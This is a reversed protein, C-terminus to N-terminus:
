QRVSLPAWCQSQVGQNEYILCSGELQKAAHKIHSVEAALMHANLKQDEPAKLAAISLGVFPFFRLTGYRDEAQRDEENYLSQSYLSFEELLHIMRSQWSGSRCLAVFDDGGIHGIFDEEPHLHKQLMRALSKILQDGLAYGYIDNFPKFNDLDLYCVVLPEGAILWADLTQQIPGNGPLLTLPNAQRASQIKLDTMIRLLDVVQGIGQYCGADTIIFDDDLHDRNRETVWQSLTELPTDRDVRLPHSHMLSNVSRRYYIEKGFPRLLEKMLQSRLLLGQPRLHTDVVPLSFLDEDQRFIEVAESIPTSPSICIVKRLLLAAVEKEQASGSVRTKRTDFIAAPLEKGPQAQPRAFYYGQVLDVGIEELRHFEEYTEVGEVILRTGLAVALTHLSRIFARKVKDKHLGRVFHQEVRVYDPRLESWLRLGSYGQGLDGLAVEFGMSRYHDLAKKMLSFDKETRNEGLQIVLCQPDLNLSQIYELTLGPEHDPQILLDPSINIFIKGPLQQEVFGKLATERSLKEPSVLHGNRRAVEFLRSPSYFPSDLPGRSFAEWAVIKQEVLSVLPQYVSLLQQEQLLQELLKSEIPSPQSSM